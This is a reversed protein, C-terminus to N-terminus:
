DRAADRPDPRHQVSCASNTASFLQIEDGLHLGAGLSFGVFLGPTSRAESDCHPTPKTFKALVLGSWAQVTMAGSRLEGTVGWAHLSLVKQPLRRDSVRAM